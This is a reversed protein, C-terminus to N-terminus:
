ETNVFSDPKACGHQSRKSGEHPAEGPRNPTPLCLPQLRLWGHALGQLEMGRGPRLEAGVSDGFVERPKQQFTTRGSTGHALAGWRLCVRLELGANGMRRLTLRSWEEARARSCLPMPLEILQLADLAALSSGCFCVSGDSRM